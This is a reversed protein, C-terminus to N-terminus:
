DEEKDMLARIEKRVEEHNKLWEVMDDDVPYDKNKEEGTLLWESGVKLAKAIRKATPECLRRKGTEIESLRSESTHCLEGLQVITLKKDKRIERLRKGIEICKEEKSKIQVADELKLEGTFYRRDVKFRDCIRELIDESPIVTGIEM